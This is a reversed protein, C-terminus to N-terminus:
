TGAVEPFRTTPGLTTALGLCQLVDLVRDLLIESDDCPPIRLPGAFTSLM